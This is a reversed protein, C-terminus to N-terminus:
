RFINLFVKIGIRLEFPLHRHRSCKSNLIPEIIMEGNEDTKYVGTPYKSRPVHPLDIPPILIFDKYGSIVCYINEYPDKHVSQSHYVFDNCKIRHEDADAACIFDYKSSTIARRDGMWFNVADPKKNFADSAFALTDIDIDDHLEPLDEILNSNQKQIYYVNRDNLDELRDIFNTMTLTQEEPMVFYEKGSPHQSSLGDAYGNPTVAVTIAKEAM